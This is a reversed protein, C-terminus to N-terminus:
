CGKVRVRYVRSEHFWKVPITRIDAVPITRMGERSPYLICKQVQHTHLSSWPGHHTGKLDKQNQSLGVYAFVEGSRLRSGCYLGADKRIATFTHLSERMISHNAPLTTKTNAPEPFRHTELILTRERKHLAMTPTGWTGRRGQVVM